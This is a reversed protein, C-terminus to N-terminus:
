KTNLYIGIADPINGIKVAVLEVCGAIQCRCRATWVRKAVLSLVRGIM